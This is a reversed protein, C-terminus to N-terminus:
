YYRSASISYQKGETKSQTMPYEESIVEESNMTASITNINYRIEDHRKLMPESVIVLDYVSWIYVCVLSLLLQYSVNDKIRGGIEEGLRRTTSSSIRKNNM